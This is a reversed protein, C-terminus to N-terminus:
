GGAGTYKRVGARWVLTALLWSWVAFLPAFWALSQPLLEPGPKDLVLLAPLYATVTSPVVFTFFVRIPTLLVSGPMQGVYKGGYVFANTFEAGNVLWFQCGGALVFLSSYITAGFVVAGTLIAVDAATWSVDVFQVSVVLAITGFLVRAFRRLQVTSTIMQPILPLPRTLYSELQGQRIFGPLSDMQGFVLDALGFGISALAFVLTAEPLTLGGYVPSANLLVYLEVFELLGTLFSGISNLVFSTRYAWQSRIRAVLITRWVPHPRDGGRAETASTLDVM